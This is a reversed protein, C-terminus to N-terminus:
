GRWFNKVINRFNEYVGEWFASISDLEMRKKAGHPDHTHKIAKSRERKVPELDYYNPNTVSEPLFQVYKVNDVWVGIDTKSVRVKIRDHVDVVVEAVNLHDSSYSLHEVPRKVSVKM